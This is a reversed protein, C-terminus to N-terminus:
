VQGKTSFPNGYNWGSKNTDDDGFDYIVNRQFTEGSKQKYNGDMGGNVFDEFDDAAVLTVTAGSCPIIPFYYTGLENYCKTLVKGITTGRSAHTITANTCDITIEQTVPYDAVVGKDQGGKSTTYRGLALLPKFTVPSSGNGTGVMPMRIDNWAVKGPGFAGEYTDITTTLTGDDGLICNPNIPAIGDFLFYYTDEVPLETLGTTEKTDANQIPWVSVPFQEFTAVDGTISTCRFLHVYKRGTSTKVYVQCADDIQFVPKMGHLTVRTEAFNEIVAKFSTFGKAAVFERENDFCSTMAGMGMMAVLAMAYYKMAKM